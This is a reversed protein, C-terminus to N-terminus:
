SITVKNQKYQINVFTALLIGIFTIGINLIIVHLPGQAGGNKTLIGAVNLIIYNALSSAIMIISTIKGKNSPFMDNSAATAMQLVGGAASFGIVFGGLLCIFPTRVIYVIILMSMAIAPYIILFRIPNVKKKMLYATLLVAIITGASYFSQIRKPDALGVMKGFEQNCNLWLQFTSTCTFGIAILAIAAPTFKMKSSAAKDGKKINSNMPPVPMFAILIGDIIILAAMLFFISKFSLENAAVFGIMTPLLLQGLSVALKTFITALGSSEVLIELCAPIIGTDIFSNAAGGLIAFAYAVYMNPSFVIGIFYIAYCAIGILASAKRGFKDSLPGAVPLTILRGLGLAAIVILVNGVDFSGDALKQAGWQSAFNQKYQGLISVGIGHIFFSIYMIFATPYYKKYNITEM